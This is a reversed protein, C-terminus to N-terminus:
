GTMGQYEHHFRFNGALKRIEEKSVTNPDNFQRHMLASPIELLGTATTLVSHSDSAIVSRFDGIDSRFEALRVLLEYYLFVPFKM